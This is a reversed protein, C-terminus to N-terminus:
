KLSSLYAVVDRREDASAQLPPMYSKAEPTIQAYQKDTLFHLKGDFAQLELDHEARGRAFGRLSSGDKLKVNVVRWTEDPRENHHQRSILIGEARM